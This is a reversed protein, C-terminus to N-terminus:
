QLDFRAANVDKYGAARVINAVQDVMPDDKSAPPDSGTYSVDIHRSVDVKMTDHLYSGVQECDLKKDEISCSHTSPYVAVTVPEYKSMDCGALSLLALFSIWVHHTRNM